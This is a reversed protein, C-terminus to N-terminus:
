SYQIINIFELYFYPGSHEIAIEFPIVTPPPPQAIRGSRTVIQIERGESDDDEPWLTFPVFTDQCGIVLPTPHTLQFPAEDPILSFPAPTQPVLSVGDIEYSDHLVIPEPLGDDWSLM